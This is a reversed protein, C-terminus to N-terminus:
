ARTCNVVYKAVCHAATLVVQHHILSGGCQYVNIKQGNKGIEERLLAVMWPFEGFQAEGDM